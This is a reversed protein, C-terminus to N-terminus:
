GEIESIEAESKKGALPLTITVTTGKQYISGIELRGGHRTVIEDAVALGIGSGRKTSDGKYFKTKVQPLDEPKIGEGTDAITVTAEEGIRRVSISVAGGGPTHKFANDLINFNGERRQVFLAANGSHQVLDAAQDGFAPGLKGLQVLQHLGPKHLHKPVWHAIWFSPINYSKRFKSIAFISHVKVRIIRSHFYM